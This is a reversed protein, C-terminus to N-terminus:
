HTLSGVEKKASTSSPRCPSGMPCGCTPNEVGDFFPHVMAEVQVIALADSLAVSV